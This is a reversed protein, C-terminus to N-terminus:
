ASLYYGIARDSINEEDFGCYESGVTLGDVGRIFIEKRLRTRRRNDLYFTLELREGTKLTEARSLSFRVGARSIDLLTVPNEGDGTRIAGSLRVPKRPYRRRELQAIGSACFGKEGEGGSAGSSRPCSFTYRVKVRGGLARYDPIDITKSRGCKPCTFTARNDERIPVSESM